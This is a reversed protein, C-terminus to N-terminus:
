DSKLYNIVGPDSLIQTVAFDIAQNCGFFSVENFRSQFGYFEEDGLKRNYDIVCYIRATTMLSVRVVEIEISKKSNPDIIAGQKKLTNKLREVIVEAFQDEKVFVDTGTLPLEREPKNNLKARVAIPNKLHYPLFFAIEESDFDHPNMHFSCAASAICFLTVMGRKFQKM